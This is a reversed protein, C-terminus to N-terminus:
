TYFLSLDISLFQGYYVLLSQIAIGFTATYSVVFFCSIFWIVVKQRRYLALLRLALLANAAGISTVM